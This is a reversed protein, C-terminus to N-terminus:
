SFEEVVAGDLDTVAALVVSFLDHVTVFFADQIWGSVSIDGCTVAEGWLFFMCSGFFFM